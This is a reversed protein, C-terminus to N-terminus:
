APRVRAGGLDIEAERSRASSVPPATRSWRAGARAIPAHQETWAAINRALVVLPVDGAKVVTGPETLAEQLYKAAPAAGAGLQQLSQVANQRVFDDQDKLAFGLGIAIMKGGIQMQGLVQAAQRRVDM